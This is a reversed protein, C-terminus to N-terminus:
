CAKFLRCLFRAVRGLFHIERKLFTLKFALLLSYNGYSCIWSICFSHPSCEKLTKESLHINSKIRRKKKKKERIKSGEIREKTRGAHIRLLEDTPVCPRVSSLKVKRGNKLRVGADNCQVHVNAEVNSSGVIWKWRKLTNTFFPVFSFFLNIVSRQCCSFRLFHM